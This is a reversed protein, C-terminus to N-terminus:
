VKVEAQVTKRGKSKLIRDRRFMVLMFVVLVLVTATGLIRTVTMIAVGYKGTVPDYHYCYLLLQDVASGIKNSAAEMLSFKLDKASYEVGYFYRSLKGEPTLVMIGSAHVYQQTEPDYKYNFGVAETLQRIPSEEGTLFHWGKEADLRGYKSIYSKKKGMALKTTEEPAFSVTVINFEDGVNFALTNLSKLLGNLVMSCLMPCEYYVLSLIVPKEGLYESLQVLKGTADRFTLDLPIQENLKQEISIGEVAEIKSGANSTQAYVSSATVLLYLISFLLYIISSLPHLFSSLSFCDMRLERDEIRSGRNEIKM